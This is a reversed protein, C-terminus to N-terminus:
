GVASATLSPGSHAGKTMLRSSAPAELNVVQPDFGLLTDRVEMPNAGKLFAVTPDSGSHCSACYLDLVPKAKNVFAQRAATEEPTLTGSGSGGDILGSCASALVALTALAPASLRVMDLHKVLTELMARRTTLTGVKSRGSALAGLMTGM